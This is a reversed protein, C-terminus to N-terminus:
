CTRNILKTKESITSVQMNVNNTHHTSPSWPSAVSTNTTSSAISTTPSPILFNTSTAVSTTICLLSQKDSVSSTLQGNSPKSSDFPSPFEFIQPSQSASSLPSAPAEFHVEINAMKSDSSSDTSSEGPLFGTEQEQPCNTWDTTTITIVSPSNPVKVKSTETFVEANRKQNNLHESSCSSLETPSPDNGGTRALNEPVSSSRSFIPSVDTAPTDMVFTPLNILERQFAVIDVDASAPSELSGESGLDMSDNNNESQPASMSSQSKCLHKKSSWHFLRSKNAHNGSNKEHKNESFSEPSSIANGSSSECVQNIQGSSNSQAPNALSQGMAKLALQTPKNKSQVGNHKAYDGPSSVNPSEMEDSSSNKNAAISIKLNRKKKMVDKKLEYKVSESNSRPPCVEEVPNEPPRLKTELNGHSSKRRIMNGFLKHALLRLIIVPHVLMPLAMLLQERFPKKDIETLFEMSCAPSIFPSLVTNQSHKVLTALSQVSASLNISSESTAEDGVAEQFPFFFTIICSCENSSQM